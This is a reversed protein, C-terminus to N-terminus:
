SDQCGRRAMRKACDVVGDYRNLWARAGNGRHEIASEAGGLGTVANRDGGLPDIHHLESPGRRPQRGRGRQAVLDLNIARGPDLGAAAAREELDCERLVADTLEEVACAIEAQGHDLHGVAHVRHALVFLEPENGPGPRRSEPHPALHALLISVLVGADADVLTAGRDNPLQFGAGVLDNQLRALRAGHADVVAIAFRRDLHDLPDDIIDAGFPQYELRRALLLLQPHDTRKSRSHVEAVHRRLLSQREGGQAGSQAAVSEALHVQVTQFDEEADPHVARELRPFAAPDNHHDIRQARARGHDGRELHAHRVTLGTALASSQM